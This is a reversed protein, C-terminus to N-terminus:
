GSSSNGDNIGHLSTTVFMLVTVQPGWNNSYAKDMALKLGPKNRCPPDHGYNLWAQPIANFTTPTAIIVEATALETQPDSSRRISLIDGPIVATWKYGNCVTINFGCNLILNLFLLEHTRM